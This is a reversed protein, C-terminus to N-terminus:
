RRRKPARDDDEEEDEEEEEEEEGEEDDDDDDEEESDDDGDHRVLALVEPLKPNKALLSQQVATASAGTAEGHALAGRYAEVLQLGRVVRVLALRLQERKVREREERGVYGEAFPDDLATLMDELSTVWYNRETTTIDAHGLFRSAKGMTNGARVLRGVITHRFAHPHVVVETVGAKRALTHLWRGLTKAPLPELPDGRTSVYLARFPREAHVARFEAAFARVAESLRPSMVFRRLTNGKERVTCLRRPEDAEDLLAAYTLHDIASARLGVDRLILLLMVLRTDDGAAAVLAEIEDDRYERRIGGSVAPERCNAIQALIMLRRVHDLHPLHPMEPLLASRVVATLRTLQNESHHFGRDSRVRSNIVKRSRLYAVITRETEAANARALWDRIVDEGGGSSRGDESAVFDLFSVLQKMLVALNRDAFGVDCGEDHERLRAASTDLLQSVWASDHRLKAERAVRTLEYPLTYRMKEALVAREGMELM